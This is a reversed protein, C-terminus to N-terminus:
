RRRRSTTRRARRAGRGRRTRAAAVGRRPAPRRSAAGRSGPPAGSRRWIGRSAPSGARRGASLAAPTLRPALGYTDQKTRIYLMTTARDPDKSGPLVFQIAHLYPAPVLSPGLRVMAQKVSEGAKPGGRPLHVVLTGGVPVGALPVALQSNGLAKGRVAQVIDDVEATRGADGVGQYGRAAGTLTTVEFRTMGGGRIHVVFDPTRQGSRSPLIQIREVGPNAAFAVLTKLEAAAARTHVPLYMKERTRFPEGGSLTRRYTETLGRMSDPSPDIKPYRRQFAKANTEARLQLPTLTEILQEPEDGDVDYVVITTGRRIWQGTM